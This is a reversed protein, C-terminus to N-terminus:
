TQNTKVTLITKICAIKHRLGKLDIHSQRTNILRNKSMPISLDGVFGRARMEMKIKEKQLEQIKKMLENTDMKWLEKKQANWNYKGDM